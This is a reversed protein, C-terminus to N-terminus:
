TGSTRGSRQFSSRTPASSTSVIYQTCGPDRELLEAARLLYGFLEDCKGPQATFSGFLGYTMVSSYICASVHKPAEEGIGKGSLIVSRWMARRSGSWMASFAV